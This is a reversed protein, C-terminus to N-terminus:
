RGHMKPKMEEFRHMYKRHFSRELRLQDVQEKQESTLVDWRKKRTEIRNKALNLKIEYIKDTLLKANKFDHNKLAERKDIELLEIQSHLKINTKAQELRIKEMQEM